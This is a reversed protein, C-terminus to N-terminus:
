VATLNLVLSNCRCVFCLSVVCAAWPAQPQCIGNGSRGWVDRGGSVSRDRDREGAVGRWAGTGMYDGYRGEVGRGATM